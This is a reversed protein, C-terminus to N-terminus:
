DIFPYIQKLDALDLGNETRWERVCDLCDDRSAGFPLEFLFECELHRNGKDTAGINELGNGVIWSIVNLEEQTEKDDRKLAGDISVMGDGQLVQVYLIDPKMEALNMLYGAAMDMLTSVRMCVESDGHGATSVAIFRDDIAGSDYVIARIM